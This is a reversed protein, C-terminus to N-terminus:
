NKTQKWRDYESFLDSKVYDFLNSGFSELKTKMEAETTPLTDGFM